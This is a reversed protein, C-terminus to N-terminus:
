QNTTKKSISNLMERTFNSWKYEELFSDYNLIKNSKDILSPIDCFNSYTKVRVRSEEKLERFVAIDPAIISFGISLSDMLIASGLVTESKYPILIFEVSSRLVKLEDFSVSRNEFDINNSLAEKIEDLLPDDVCKGIIKIKLTQLKLNSKVQLLFELVGKYESISGWILLDYKKTFEHTILRNKTPHMFYASKDKFKELIELGEKSHTFIHTSMGKLLYLLHNSQIEEIKNKLGHVKKNHCFWVIKKGFLKLVTLLVVAYIYQLFGRKYTPVNELWHFIFIDADNIYLGLPFLHNGKHNKNVIVSGQNELNECFDNIFSNKADTMEDMCPYVIIRKIQFSEKELM